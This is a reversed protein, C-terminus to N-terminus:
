FSFGGFVAFAWGEEDIKISEALSFDSNSFRYVAQGGIVFSDVQVRAQAFAGYEIIESDNSRGIGGLSQEAEAYGIGGFSGGHILISRDGYLRFGYYVTFMYAEFDLQQGSDQAEGNQYSLGFGSVSGGQYALAMLDYRDFSDWDQFVGGLDEGDAELQYAFIFDDAQVLSAGGLLFTVIIILISCCVAHAKRLVSKHSLNHSHASTKFDSLRVIM